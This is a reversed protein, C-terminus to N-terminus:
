LNLNSKIEILLEPLRKERKAITSIECQWVILVKWGAEELELTKRRDREINANLKPIWYAKNSQPRRGARCSHGHWFCGHIFLVTKYKKLVIDPSGPLSRVNTRYRFGQSFLYKRVLLEPNTNEHKIKSMIESRKIKSCSDM